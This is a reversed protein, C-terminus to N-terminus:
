NAQKPAIPRSRLFRLLHWFRSNGGRSAQNSTLQNLIEAYAQEDVPLEDHSLHLQGEFNTLREGPLILIPWEAKTESGCSLSFTLRVRRAPGLSGLESFGFRNLWVRQSTRKFQVFFEQTRLVKEGQALCARFKLLTNPAPVMTQFGVSPRFAVHVGLRLAGSREFKIQGDATEAVLDLPEVRLQRLWQERSLLQFSHAALERGAVTAVLCYSGPAPFLEPDKVCIPEMTILIPTTGLTLPKTGLPTRKRGAVLTWTISTQYEPLFETLESNPITFQAAVSDSTDALTEGQYSQDGTQIWLRLAEAKLTELRLRQARAEGLVAFRQRSLLEKRREDQITLEVSECQDLPMRFRVQVRTTRRAVSQRIECDQIDFAANKFLNQGSAAAGAQPAGTTPPLAALRVQVLRARDFCFKPWRVAFSIWTEDASGLVQGELTFMKGTRVSACTLGLIDPRFLRAIWRGLARCAANVRGLSM